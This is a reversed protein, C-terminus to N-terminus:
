QLMLFVIGESVLSFCVSVFLKKTGSWMRSIGVFDFLFGFILTLPILPVAIFILVFGARLVNESLGLVGGILVVVFGLVLLMFLTGGIDDMLLSADTDDMKNKRRKKTRAKKGKRAM